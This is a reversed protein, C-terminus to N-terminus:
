PTPSPGGMTTSSNKTPRPFSGSMQPLIISKATDPNKPYKLMITILLELTLIGEEASAKEELQKKRSEEVERKRRLEEERARKLEKLKLEELEKKLSKLDQPNWSNLHFFQRWANQEKEKMICTFLMITYTVENEKRSPKLTAGLGTFSQHTKGKRRIGKRIWCKYM